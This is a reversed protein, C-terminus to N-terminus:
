PARVPHAVTSLSARPPLDLAVWLGSVATLGAVFAIAAGFDIAQALV